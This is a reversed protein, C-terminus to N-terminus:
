ITLPLVISILSHMSLYVSLLACISVFSTCRNKGFRVLSIIDLVSMAANVACLFSVDSAAKGCRLGLDSKRYTSLCRTRCEDFLDM